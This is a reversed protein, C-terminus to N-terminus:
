RFRMDEFHPTVECAEGARFEFDLSEAVRYDSWGGGTADEIGDVAFGNLKAPLDGPHLNQLRDLVDGKTAILHFAPDHLTRDELPHSTGHWNLRHPRVAVFFARAPRLALGHSKLVDAIAEMSLHERPLSRYGQALDVCLKAAACTGAFTERLGAK